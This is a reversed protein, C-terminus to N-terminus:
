KTQSVPPGLPADLSARTSVEAGFGKELKAKIKVEEDPEPKLDLAQKWQFKAELQRGVQWYADGLHNNITPDDPRAVVARELEIVARSYDKLRFYGWGLSDRYYGDDPTKELARNILAMGEKLNINQDIWVYGLYNLTLGQNEDLELAKKLDAEAKPWDKTREYCVGRGYYLAWHIREPKGLKQLAMTFYPIAEGCEKNGRFLNALAYAPRMDDPYRQVLEKLITKAEDIRNLTSLDFSRRLQALPWLPSERSIHSYSLVALEYNKTQEYLEGLSYQTLDSDPKVYLALQLYINAADLAMKASFVEGIGHFVENLGDRPTSVLLAVKKGAAIEDAIAKMQFNSMPPTLHPKLIELAVEKEGWHAAHRAYAESIRLNLPSKSRLQEYALKAEKRREAAAEPTSATQAAVDAIMAYHFLGVEGSQTSAAATMLAEKVRGRALEIWARSLSGTVDFFADNTTSNFYQEAETYNKKHFEAIGLLFNAINHQNERAVIKRALEVAEPFGGTTLKLQFAEELITKSEPDKELVERYYVAATENDRQNRALRGALYSGYLSNSDVLQYTPTEAQVEIAYIGRATLVALFVVAGISVNRYLRLARGNKKLLLKLAKM